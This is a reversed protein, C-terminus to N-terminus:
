LSKFNISISKMNGLHTKNQSLKPIHKIKTSFFDKAEKSGIFIASTTAISIIEQKLAELNFKQPLLDTKTIVIVDSAVIQRLNEDHKLHLRINLADICVIVRDIYFHHILLADSLLSFMIPASDALGTTEIIISTLPINGNQHSFLM